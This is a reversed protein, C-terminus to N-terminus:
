STSSHCLLGSPVVLGVCLQFAVQLGPAQPPKIHEVALLIVQPAVGQRPDFLAQQVLQRLIEVEM